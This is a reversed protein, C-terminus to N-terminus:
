QLDKYLSHSSHLHFYVWTSFMDGKRCKREAQEIVYDSTFYIGQCHLWLIETPTLCGGFENDLQPYFKIKRLLRKVNNPSM